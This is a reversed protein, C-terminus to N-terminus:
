KSGSSASACSTKKCEPTIPCDTTPCDTKACDPTPQCSTKVSEKKAVAKKTTKKSGGNDAYVAVSIMIMSCIISFFIKKM